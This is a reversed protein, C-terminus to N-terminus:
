LADFELGSRGRHGVFMGPTLGMGHCLLGYGRERRVGGRAFKVRRIVQRSALCRWGAVLRTRVATQGAGAIGTRTGRFRRMMLLSSLSRPRGSGLGFFLCRCLGWGRGGALGPRSAFSAPTPRAPM